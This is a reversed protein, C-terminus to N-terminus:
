PRNEFFIIYIHISLLCVLGISKIMWARTAYVILQIIRTFAFSFAQYINICTCYM